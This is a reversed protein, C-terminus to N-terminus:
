LHANSVESTIVLLSTFIPLFLISKHNGSVPLYIRPFGRPYNLLLQGLPLLTHHDTHTHYWCELAQPLFTPKLGAQTGYHPKIKGCLSGPIYSLPLSSVLGKSGNETWLFLHIHCRRTPYHFHSSVLCVYQDYLTPFTCFVMPNKM